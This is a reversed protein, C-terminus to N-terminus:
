IQSREPSDDILLVEGDGEVFVVGKSFLMESKTIDLFRDLDRRSRDDLGRVFSYASRAQCGNGSYDKLLVLDELNASSALNPSHTTVIVPQKRRRARALFDHFVLRQLHPHLHAEPEELALIPLFREKKQSRKIEQKEVELSLLALYLANLLGLSTRELARHKDGDVFLRLSQELGSATTGDLGLRPDMMYLEGIMDRLRDQIDTELSSLPQLTLVDDSVQRVKTAHPELQKTELDTLGVLRNLPSRRWVRNDAAIDRLAGIPQLPINRRLAHINFRHDSHNGPYISFEYDDPGSSAPSDLNKTSCYLYTLQAVIQPQTEVICDGSLLSLPLYDPQPSCDSAFLPLNQLSDDTDTFDTFRIVVKIERGGFAKEGDWFDQEELQRDLDSLSPDLILRLAEVFNTKGAKNEGVLVVNQGLEVECLRFNRFNEIRVYCIRM